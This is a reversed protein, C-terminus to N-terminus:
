FNPARTPQSIFFLLSFYPSTKTVPKLEEPTYTQGITPSEILLVEVNKSFSNEIETLSILKWRINGAAEIIEFRALFLGDKNQIVKEIIQINRCTLQM